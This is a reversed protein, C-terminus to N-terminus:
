NKKEIVPRKLFTDLMRDVEEKTYLRGGALIVALVDHYKRYTKSALFQEKTHMPMKREM